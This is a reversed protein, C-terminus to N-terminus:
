KAPRYVKVNKYGEDLLHLAHLQSMVGKECYLYYHQNRDLEAFVRSLQYFPVTKVENDLELPKNEEEDPHRIDIVIAQEPLVEDIQVEHIQRDDQMVEHISVASACSIAQELVAFDFVQEERSVKEPKARTTPNVSIVGCYEPMHKAFEETGIRAATDIIDQKDMTILPRLVLRDTAQNIVGLNPLTQSSVQSIAEGTVLAHVDLNEAVKDAARLMMRKLLVGMYSNDVKTLIEEVVGEFPVTIFKVRHSAGYKSWLYYAVEKVGIEHAHGGLNFFCFHTLVGRKMTLFSSVTSDFGGSILSLVADQTGLPYGGIGLHRERVIYLQKHHIEIRVTVDPNKLKVSCDQVRQLLGGGVYREVEISSFEHHGNRQCRVCFTKGRIAEGMVQFAKETIDDLDVLPFDVVELIHCIGPTHQLQERIQRCVQEDQQETSIIIKDWTGTVDIGPDIPRLLTRINRRLQKVFRQRVPKSKITIEPFIKVVFNM